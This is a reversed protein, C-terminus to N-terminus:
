NFYVHLQSGSSSPKIEVKNNIQNKLEEVHSIIGVMRGESEIRILTDIATNLSESDLSGFGEDIFITDIQIGGSNMQVIDSLGLAMSLAAKFSEGGSLSKVDRIKSTYNDIINLDLGQAGRGGNSDKYELEFRNNSMTKFYINARAIIQKFYISLMYREFSIKSASKGNAIDSVDAIVQYRKLDNQAKMELSVVRQIDQKLGYELSSLLKEIQKYTTILEYTVPIQEKLQEINIPQYDAISQELKAQETILVSKDNLYKSYINQIEKHRSLYDIYTTLQDAKFEEAIKKNITVCDTIIQELEQQQNTIGTIETALSTQLTQEDRIQKQLQRYETVIQKQKRALQELRTELVPKSDLQSQDLTLNAALESNTEVLSQIRTKSEVQKESIQKLAMELQDINLKTELQKIESKLKSINVKTQDVLSNYDIDKFEVQSLLKDILANCVEIKQIIANVIKSQKNAVREYTEIQELSIDIHKHSAPQPHNLSGCVPCPSNEELMLAMSGAQATLYQNRSTRLQEQKQNLITNEVDLELTLDKAQAVLKDLEQKSAAGALYEELKKDLEILILNKEEILGQNERATQLKQQFNVVEQQNTDSEAHLRELQQNNSEIKDLVQLQYEIKDIQQKFKAEESRLQEIQEFEIEAQKFLKDTKSAKLKKLQKTKLVSQQELSTRKQQSNTIMDLNTKYSIITQINDLFCKYEEMQKAKDELKLLQQKTDTLQQIQLQHNEFKSLLSQQNQSEFELKQLYANVSHLNYDVNAKFHQLSVGSHIHPYEELITTIQLNIDDVTRKLSAADQRMEEQIRKIHATNFIKRFIDEKSRSDSTLLKKFEGQPLLVIQKFQDKSLGLIQEIKQAVESQATYSKDNYTLTVQSDIKRMGVGRLKPRLQTPVRKIRYEVDRVSFVFDVSTAVSDDAFDSRFMDASRDSGSASGYLAFSMADFITTKGSGTPGSIVFMNNNKMKTFDITQTDSYPGFASFTLRLPRM